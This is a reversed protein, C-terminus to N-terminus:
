LSLNYFERFFYDVSNFKKRDSNHYNIRILKQVESKSVGGTIVTKNEIPAYVIDLFFTSPDEPHIILTKM